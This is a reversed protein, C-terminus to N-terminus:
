ALEVNLLKFVNHIRCFISSSPSGAFHLGVARNRNNLVLSGSDGGATYRSCLVLDTLGAARRGSPTPYELRM